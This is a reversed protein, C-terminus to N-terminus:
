MVTYTNLIHSISQINASHAITSIHVSVSENYGLITNVRCFYAYNLRYMDIKYQIEITEM